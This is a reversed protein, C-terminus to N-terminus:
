NCNLKVDRIYVMRPCGVFWDTLIFALLRALTSYGHLTHRCSQLLLSLQMQQSNRCTDIRAAYLM